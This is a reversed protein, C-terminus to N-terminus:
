VYDHSLLWEVTLSSSVMIETWKKNLRFYIKFFNKKLLNENRELRRFRQRGTKKKYKTKKKQTWAKTFQRCYNDRLTEVIM